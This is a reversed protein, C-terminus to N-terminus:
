SPSPSAFGGLWGPGQLLHTELSREVPTLSSPTLLTPDEADSLGPSEGDGLIQTNIPYPGSIQM